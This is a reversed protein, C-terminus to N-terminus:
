WIGREERKSYGGRRVEITDDMGRRNLKGREERVDWGIGGERIEGYCGWCDWGM